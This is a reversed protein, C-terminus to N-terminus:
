KVMIKKGNAIYIGKPLTNPDINNGIHIGQLTYVDVKNITSIEDIATTDFETDNFEKVSASKYTLYGGNGYHARTKDIYNANYKTGTGGVIAKCGNFMNASSRVNDTIWYDSVYITKLKSCSNFMYGMYNVYDTNFESLNLTTLAKCGNFMCSMTTVSRTNLNQIGSITTLVKFGNFWHYLSGPHTNAFDSTFVVKKM